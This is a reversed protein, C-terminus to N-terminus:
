TLFKLIAFAVIVVTAAPAATAANQAAAHNQYKQKGQAVAQVEIDINKPATTAPKFIAISAYSLVNLLRLLANIEPSDIIFKPAANARIAQCNNIVAVVVAVANLQTKGATKAKIGIKETGISHILNYLSYYTV